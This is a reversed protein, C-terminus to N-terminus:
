KFDNQRERIRYDLDRIADEITKGFGSEASLNKYKPLEIEYMNAHKNWSLKAKELGAKNFNKLYKQYLPHEHLAKQAQAPTNGISSPRQIKEEGPQKPKFFERAKKMKETQSIYKNEAKNLWREFKRANIEYTRDLYPTRKETEAQVRAQIRTVVEGKDKAKRLGQKVHAV